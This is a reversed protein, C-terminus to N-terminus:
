VRTGYGHGSGGVFGIALGADFVLGIVRSHRNLRFLVRPNRPFEPSIRAHRWFGNPGM